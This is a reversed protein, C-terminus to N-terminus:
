HTLKTATPRLKEGIFLRISFSIFIIPILSVFKSLVHDSCLCELASSFTYHSYYCCVTRKLYGLLEMTYILDGKENVKNGETRQHLLTVLSCSSLFCKIPLSYNALDGRDGEKTGACTKRCRHTTQGKM